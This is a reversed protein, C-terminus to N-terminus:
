RNGIEKARREDDLMVAIRAFILFSTLLVGPLLFWRNFGMMLVLTLIYIAVINRELGRKLFFAETSENRIRSWFNQAVDFCLLFILLGASSTFGYQIGRVFAALNEAGDWPPLLAAGFGIVVGFWQLGLLIQWGTKDMDGGLNFSVGANQPQQLV